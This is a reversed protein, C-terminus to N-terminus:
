ANSFTTELEKQLTQCKSRYYDRQKLVKQLEVKKTSVEKELSVNEETMKSKKETCKLRCKLAYKRNKLIRRRKKIMEAQHKSIGQIHNNLEKTAMKELKKDSLATLFESDSLNCTTKHYQKSASKRKPKSGAKIRSPSNKKFKDLEKLIESGKVNEDDFAGLTNDFSLSFSSHAPFNLPLDEKIAFIYDGSEMDSFRGSPNNRFRFGKKFLSILPRRPNFLPVGKVNFQISRQSAM